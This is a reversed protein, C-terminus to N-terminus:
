LIITQEPTEQDESLGGFFAWLGPNAETLMDRKHLLVTRDKPNYLFAGAYFGPM